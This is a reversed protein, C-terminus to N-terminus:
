QADRTKVSASIALKTGKMRNASKHLQVTLCPVAGGGDMNISRGVRRGGGVLMMLITM